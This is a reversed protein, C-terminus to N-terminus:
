SPVLVSTSLPSPQLCACTSWVCLSVAFTARTGDVAEGADSAQVFSGAIKAGTATPTHSGVGPQVMTMMMTAITWEHNSARGSLNSPSTSPSFPATLLTTAMPVVSPKKTSLDIATKSRRPQLPSVAVVAGEDYEM